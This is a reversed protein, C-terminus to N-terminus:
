SDHTNRTPIHHRLRSQRCQSGGGGISHAQAGTGRYPIRWACIWSRARVLTRRPPSQASLYQYYDPDVRHVSLYQSFSGYRATADTVDVIMMTAPLIEM